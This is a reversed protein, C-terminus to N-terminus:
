EEDELVDSFADQLIRLRTNKERALSRKEQSLSEKRYWYVDAM